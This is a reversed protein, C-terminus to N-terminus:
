VNDKKLSSFPGNQHQVFSANESDQPQYVPCDYM